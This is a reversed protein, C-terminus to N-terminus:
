IKQNKIWINRDHMFLESNEITDDFFLLDLDSEDSVFLQLAM